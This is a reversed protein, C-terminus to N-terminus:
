FGLVPFYVDGPADGDGAIPMSHPPEDPERMLFAFSGLKDGIACGAIREGPVLWVFFRAGAARLHRMTVPQWRRRRAIEASCAPALRRPAGFQLMGGRLAPTVARASANFYPMVAHVGVIQSSMDFYVFGGHLLFCVEPNDFDYDDDSVRSDRTSDFGGGTGSRERRSRDFAQQAVHRTIVLPSYAFAVSHAREPTRSATRTATDMNLVAEVSLELTRAEGDDLLGARLLADLEKSLGLLGATASSESTGVRLARRQARMSTSSQTACSVPLRPTSGLSVSRRRDSTAGPDSKHRLRPPLDGGASRAPQPPPLNAASAEGGGPARGLLPEVACLPVFRTPAVPSPALSEPFASPPPATTAFRKRVMAWSGSHDITEFADLHPAGAIDNNIRVVFDAKPTLLKLSHDPAELSQVILEEPPMRGTRAAREACRARVTAESAYVYFIAISYAPHKERVEDFVRAFWAGDRLSGDVWVHQSHRMAVEQAIEQIYGSERHCQTGAQEADRAVYPDWEPMIRKFHDPDIHVIQELPFIGAESMWSMVFGKGTGMAGCTYVIWPRPQPNTRMVVSLVAQDQWRQREASYNVHYGYDAEARVDAFEGVFGESLPVKYNACTPQSYDYDDAIHFQAQRARAYNGAIVVLISHRHMSGLFEDFTLVPADGEALLAESDPEAGTLKAWIRRVEISSLDFQMQGLLLGEFQGYTIALPAGNDDDDAGNEDRALDRFMQRLADADVHECMGDTASQATAVSPLRRSEGDMWAVMSGRRDRPPARLRAPKATAREGSLDRKCCWAMM